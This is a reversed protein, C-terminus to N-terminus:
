VGTCPLTLQFFENHYGLHLFLLYPMPLHSCSKDTKASIFCIWPDPNLKLWQIVCLYRFWMFSATWAPIHSCSQGSHNTHVSPPLVSFNSEQISKLPKLKKTWYTNAHSFVPKTCSYRDFSVHFDNGYPWLFGTFQSCVIRVGKTQTCNRALFNSYSKHLLEIRLNKYIEQRM